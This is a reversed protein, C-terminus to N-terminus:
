LRGNKHARVKPADTHFMFAEYMRIMMHSLTLYVSRVCVTSLQILNMLKCYGLIDTNLISWGGAMLFVNCPLVTTQAGGRTHSDETQRLTVQCCQMHCFDWLPNEEECTYYPNSVCM